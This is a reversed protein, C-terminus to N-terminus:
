RKQEPKVLRNNIKLVISKSRSITAEVVSGDDLTTSLLIFTYNIFADHEDVLEGNIRLTHHYWGVYVSIMTGNYNYQKFSLSLSYIFFMFSILTSLFLLSFASSSVSSFAIILALTSLIFLILWVLRHVLIKTKEEM